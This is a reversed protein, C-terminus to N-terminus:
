PPPRPRTGRRPGAFIFLNTADARASKLEGACQEASNRGIEPDGGTGLGRTITQGIQVRRPAVSATLAQVDTNIAVIEAGPLGDLVLRDLANGGAGGIGIVKLQPQVFCAPHRPITIM